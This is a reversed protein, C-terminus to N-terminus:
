SEELNFFWDQKCAWNLKSYAENRQAKVRSLESQLSDIKRLAVKKDRMLMRNVERCEALESVAIDANALAYTAAELKAEATEARRVLHENRTQMGVYKTHNRESDKRAKDGGERAQELQKRLKQGEVKLTSIEKSAPMWRELLEDYRVRLKELATKEKEDEM